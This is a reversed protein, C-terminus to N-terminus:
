VTEETDAEFTLGAQYQRLIVGLIASLASAVFWGLAYLQVPILLTSTAHANGVLPAPAWSYSDILFAALSTMTALALVKRLAIAASVLEERFVRRGSSEKLFQRATRVLAVLTIATFVQVLTAITALGPYTAPEARTYVSTSVINPTSAGSDGLVTPDASPSGLGVLHDFRPEASVEFCRDLGPIRFFGDDGTWAMGANLVLM